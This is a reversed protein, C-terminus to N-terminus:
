DVSILREGELSIAPRMSIEFYLDRQMDVRSPDGVEMNVLSVRSIYLSGIEMSGWGRFCEEPSRLHQWSPVSEVVDSTGVSTSSVSVM